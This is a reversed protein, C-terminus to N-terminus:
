RYSLNSVHWAFLVSKANSAFVVGLVSAAVLLQAPSLTITLGSSALTTIADMNNSLLQPLNFTNLHSYNKFKPL